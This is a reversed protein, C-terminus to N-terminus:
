KSVNLLEEVITNIRESVVSEIIGGETEILCDGTRLRKDIEIRFERTNGAMGLWKEHKKNITIYDDQSVKLVMTESGIMHSMAEAVISEVISPDVSISKLIIKEAIAAALEIIKIETNRAIERGKNKAEKLLSDVGKFRGAREQAIGDAMGSDYGGQRAEEIETSHIQKNSETQETFKKTFKEAAKEKWSEIESEIIETFALPDHIERDYSIGAQTSVNKESKKEIVVSENMEVSKKIVNSL